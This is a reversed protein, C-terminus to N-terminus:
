ELAETSYISMPGPPSNKLHKILQSCFSLHCLLSMAGTIHFAVGTHLKAFQTPSFATLFYASGMCSLTAVGGM